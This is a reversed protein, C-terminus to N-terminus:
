NFFADAEILIKSHAACALDRTNLDQAIGDAAQKTM